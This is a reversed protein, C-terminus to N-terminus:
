LKRDELKDMFQWKNQKEAGVYKRYGQYQPLFVFDPPYDNWQPLGICDQDNSFSVVIAYFSDKIYPIQSM